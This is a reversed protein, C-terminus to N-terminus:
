AMFLQLASGSFHDVLLVVYEVTLCIEDATHPVETVARRDEGDSGGHLFRNGRRITEHLFLLRKLDADQIDGTNMRDIGSGNNLSGKLGMVEDDDFIVIREATECRGDCVNDRVKSEGARQTTESEGM